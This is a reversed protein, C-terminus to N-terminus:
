SNNKIFEELRNRRAVLREIYADADKLQNNLDEIIPKNQNLIISDHRDVGFYLIGCQVFGGKYRIKLNNKTDYKSM